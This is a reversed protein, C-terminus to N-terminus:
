PWVVENGNEDFLYGWQVETLVNDEFWLNLSHSDFTLQCSKKDGNNELDSLMEEYAGLPMDALAELVGSKSQGIIAKENLMMLQSSAEITGLRFDDEEDFSVYGEISDYYWMIHVEGSEGDSDSRDPQGPYDQVESRTAGFRLDGIGIGLKISIIDTM